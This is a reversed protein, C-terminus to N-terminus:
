TMIHGPVDVADGGHDRQGRIGAGRPHAELRGRRKPTVDRALSRDADVPHAERDVPDLACAEVHVQDRVCQLHRGELGELGAGADIEFDVDDRAVQFLKMFVLVISSIRASMRAPRMTIMTSSSSRSFSPSRTMAACHTVASSMLKM